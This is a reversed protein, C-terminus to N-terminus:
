EGGKTLQNVGSFRWGHYFGRACAWAAKGEGRLATVLMTGLVSMTLYIWAALSYHHRYFQVRYRTKLYYKRSVDGRTSRSVKHWMRAAPVCGISFGAKVARRCFDADEYYMFYSPDFLGITLFVDRRILMGCGTVYDVPLLDKESRLAKASVRFPIPLWRRHQAGLQWIQSPRDHYFIVPALIGIDPYRDAAAILREIMDPAIITDNNLLLVWDAGQALAYRIGVNVGAAFGVNAQNALLVVREGFRNAIASASGDSSGNDVVVVGQPTYSSSLVSEVCAITDDKLNWNLIVVFVKPRAMEEMM